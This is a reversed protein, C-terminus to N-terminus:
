ALPVMVLSPGTGNTFAELAASFSVIYLAGDSVVVSTPVDLGDDATAVTTVEGDSGVAFIEHTGPSAVYVTGDDDVDIGDAVVIAGDPADAGLDVFLEAEGANGDDGIPITVVTGPETVGVYLTGDHVDVGNAGIPFGFELEGTGALLESEAWVEVAGGAVSRYIAGAGAPGITDSVYIADGDIAIANPFVIAESGEVREATGAGTDFAWVGHAEPNTSFVGGYVIGDAGAALGILGFDGEALGDVQGVVEPTSSGAPVRLLRGIPSLSVYVNGDDDVAVGEPLEGSAADFAVVTSAGDDGDDGDDGDADTDADDTGDDTGSGDDVDASGDPSAPTTDDDDGCASALLSLAFFGAVLRNLRSM